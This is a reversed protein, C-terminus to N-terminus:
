HYTVNYKHDRTANSHHHVTAHSCTQACVYWLCWSMCICVCVCVGSVHVVCVMGVCWECVGSVCVCVCVCVCVRVQM